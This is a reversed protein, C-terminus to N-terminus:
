PPSRRKTDDGQNWNEMSSIIYCEWQIHRTVSGCIQRALCATLQQNTTVSAHLYELDRETMTTEQQDHSSPFGGQPVVQSRTPTDTPLTVDGNKKLKPNSSEAITTASIYQKQYNSTKSSGPSYDM